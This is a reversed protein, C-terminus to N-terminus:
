LMGEGGFDHLPGPAVYNSFTPAKSTGIEIPMWLVTLPLAVMRYGNRRFAGRALAVPWAAPRAPQKDCSLHWTEFQSRREDEALQLM